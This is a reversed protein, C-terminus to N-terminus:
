SSLTLNRLLYKGVIAFFFSITAAFLLIRVLVDEFQEMIREWLSKEEEASLENSGFKERQVAVQRSSLGNTPDTGYKSYAQDITLTHFNFKSTDKKMNQIAEARVQDLKAEQEKSM